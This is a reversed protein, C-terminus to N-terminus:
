GRNINVGSAQSGATNITSPKTPQQQSRLIALGRRKTKGAGAPRATGVKKARKIPPAIPNEIGPPISQAM